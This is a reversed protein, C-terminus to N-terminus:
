RKQKKKINKKTIKAHGKIVQNSHKDVLHLGLSEAKTTWWKCLPCGLRVYLHTKSDVKTM